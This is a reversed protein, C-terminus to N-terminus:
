EYGLEEKDERRFVQLQAGVQGRRVTPLRQAVRRGQQKAGREVLVLPVEGPLQVEHQPHEVGLNLRVRPLLRPTPPVGARRLLLAVRPRRVPPYPCDPKPEHVHRPGVPPLCSDYLFFFPQLFTATAAAVAAVAPAQAVVAVHLIPFYVHAAVAIAVAVAVTAIPAVAAVDVLRHEVNDVAVGEAAVSAEIFWVQLSSCAGCHGTHTVAFGETAAAEPSSFNKM